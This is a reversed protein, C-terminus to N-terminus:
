SVISTVLKTSRINFKGRSPAVFGPRQGSLRRQEHGPDHSQRRARPDAASVAPLRHQAPGAASGVKKAPPRRRPRAARRGRGAEELLLCAAVRGGSSPALRRYNVVRDTGSFRSVSIVEMDNCLNLEHPILERSESSFTTEFV